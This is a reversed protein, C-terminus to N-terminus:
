TDTTLAQMHSATRLYEDLTLRVALRARHLRTKVVDGTVDLIRATDLTSVEEVDRLMIVSRYDEPLAGIARDLVQKLEAQLVQRDPLRSWDAIELRAHGGQPHM